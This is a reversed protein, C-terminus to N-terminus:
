GNCLLSPSVWLRDTRNHFIEGGGPNSGLGDLGYLTARGVASDRRVRCFGVGRLQTVPIECVVILCYQAILCCALDTLLPSVFLPSVFM